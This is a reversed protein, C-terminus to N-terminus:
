KCCNKLNTYFENRRKTLITNEYEKSKQFTQKRLQNFETWNLIVEEIRKAFDQPTNSYVLLKDPLLERIGDVASAVTILGNAMAEIVSRPLGEGLSPFVFLHSTQLVNQVENYGTKWGLFEVDDRLDLDQVMAEFKKRVVGDGMLRLIVHYGADKLLRVARILIDQGKRNDNMKGSHVIVVTEPLQNGMSVFKYDEQSIRITSYHSQFYNRDVNDGKEMARCPFLKQLVHETVYAVGNAKLCMERTQNTVVKQILPQMWSNLSERSYQTIPNNMLELAFPKNSDRILPYAVLSIPSPARYIICDSQSIAVKLISRIKFINKLIGGIGRFDPLPIFRVHERSSKALGSSDNDNRKMIRGCVIIDEFVNLYREWFLANVMDNTWIEGNALQVLHQEVLVLLKM